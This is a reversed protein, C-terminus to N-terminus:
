LCDTLNAEAYDQWTGSANTKNAITAHKGCHNYIKDLKAQVSPDPLVPVMGSDIRWRDFTEPVQKALDIPPLVEAARRHPRLVVASSAAAASGLALLIARRKM